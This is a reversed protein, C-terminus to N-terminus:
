VSLKLNCSDTYNIQVQGSKTSVNLSNMSGNERSILLMNKSQTLQAEFEVKFSSISVDFRDPAGRTSRSAKVVKERNM